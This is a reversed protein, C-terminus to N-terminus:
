GLVTKTAGYVALGAAAGTLIFGGLLVPYATGAFALGAGGCSVFLAAGGAAGVAAFALGEM